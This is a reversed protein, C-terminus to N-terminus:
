ILIRMVNQFTFILHIKQFSSFACAPEHRNYPMPKSDSLFLIFNYLLQCSIIAFYKSKWTFKDSIIYAIMKAYFKKCSAYTTPLLIICSM